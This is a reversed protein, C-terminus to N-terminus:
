LPTAYFGDFSRNLVIVSSSCDAFEALNQPPEPISEPKGHVVTSFARNWFGM